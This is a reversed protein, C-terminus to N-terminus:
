ADVEYLFGPGGLYLGGDVNICQDSAYIFAKGAAKPDIKQIPTHGHIFRNGGFMSLFQAARDPGDPGLFAEHESFKDLARNWAMRDDSVLLESFHQNVMDVSDGYHAYFLADAHAILTDGEHAMMPLHSLWAVHDPTIRAFDALAGGNRLWGGTFLDVSEPSVAVNDESAALLLTRYRGFKYVALLLMDHNGLVAEVKGGAKAAQPQLSMVLDVASIGDPGRDFFDGVLWLSSNGGQWQLQDDILGSNKLLAVLQPYQGHVDGMVYISPM